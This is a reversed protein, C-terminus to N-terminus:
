HTIVRQIELRPRGFNIVLGTRRRTARLYNLCQARHIRELGPLAKLEVIVEDDVVMDAQYLGVRESEYWVEIARQQEVIHGGRRLEFALANEYVKELFGAGLYNAVKYAAGIIAQTM